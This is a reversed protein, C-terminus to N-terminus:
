ARLRLVLADLRQRPYRSPAPRNSCSIRGMTSRVDTERRFLGQLHPGCATRHNRDDAFWRSQRSDPRQDFFHEPVAACRSSGSSTTARPAATCALMRELPELGFYATTRRLAVIREANFDSVFHGVFDNQANSWGLTFSWAASCWAPPRVPWHRRHGRAAPGVLQRVASGPGSRGALTGEIGAFGPTSTLM